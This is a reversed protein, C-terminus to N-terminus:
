HLRERVHEPLSHSSVKVIKMCGQFSARALAQSILLTVLALLHDICQVLPVDVKEFEVNRFVVFNCEDILKLMLSDHMIIM